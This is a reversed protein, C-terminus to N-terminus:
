YCCVIEFEVTEDDKAYEIWGNYEDITWTVASFSDVCEVFGVLTGNIFFDVHYTIMSVAGIKYNTKTRTNEKLLERPRVLEIV